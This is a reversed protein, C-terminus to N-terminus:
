SSHQRQTQRASKAIRRTAISLLTEDDGDDQKEFSQLVPLPDFAQWAPMASMFATLLSGGRLIWIVYGVSLSTSVVATSGVVIQDMLLPTVFQNRSSETHSVRDLSFLMGSAVADIPDNLSREGLLSMMAREVVSTPQKERSASSTTNMDFVVGEALLQEIQSTDEATGTSQEIANEEATFPGQASSFNGRSRNSSPAPGVVNSATTDDGAGASDHGNDSTDTRSSGSNTSATSGTDSGSTTTNGSSNSGGSGVATMVDITVTVTNSVSQGDSTQYSFVDIGSFLDTPKYTLSGDSNLILTGHIPGTMIMAHVADGDDDLDNALVGNVPVKLERLQLARLYDAVAVPAENINTVHVVFAQSFKLEQLDTVQVIIPLQPTAEFNLVADPAVTLRGTM